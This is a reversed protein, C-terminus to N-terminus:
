TYEEINVNKVYERTITFWSELPDGHEHDLPFVIQDGRQVDNVELYMVLGNLGDWFPTSYVTIDPKAQNHTLFIIDPTGHSVSWGTAGFYGRVPGMHAPDTIREYLDRHALHYKLDNGKM